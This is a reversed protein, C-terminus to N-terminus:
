LLFLGTYIPIYTNYLIDYWFTGLGCLEVGRVYLFLPIVTMPGALLLLLSLSPNSIGFDNFGNITIM